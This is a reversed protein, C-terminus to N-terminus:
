RSIPKVPTAFDLAGPVATAAPTIGVNVSLVDYAFPPRGKLVV